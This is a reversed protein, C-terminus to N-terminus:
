LALEGCPTLYGSRIPDGSNRLSHLLRLRARQGPANRRDQCPRGTGLGGAVM